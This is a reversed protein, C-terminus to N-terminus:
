SGSLERSGFIMCIGFDILRILISALADDVIYHIHQTQIGDRLSRIGTVQDLMLPRGSLGSFKIQEFNAVKKRSFVSPHASSVYSAYRLRHLGSSESSTRRLFRIAELFITCQFKSLTVSGFYCDQCDLILNQVKFTPSSKENFLYPLLLFDPNRLPHPGFFAAEIRSLKFDLDKIIQLRFLSLSLSRFYPRIHTGTVFAPWLKHCISDQVTLPRLM